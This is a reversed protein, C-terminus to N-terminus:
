HSSSGVSYIILIGTGTSELAGRIRRRSANIRCSYGSRYNRFREHVQFVAHTFEQSSSIFRVPDPGRAAHTSWVQPLFLDHDETGELEEATRLSRILLKHIQVLTVSLCKDSAGHEATPDLAASPEDFLLLGVSQEESLLSRMFSRSRHHTQTCLVHHQRLVYVALRQMQGGSLHVSDSSRMGGMAQGLAGLNM